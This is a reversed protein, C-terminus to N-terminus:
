FWVVEISEQCPHAVSHWPQQHTVVKLQKHLNIDNIDDLVNNDDRSSM